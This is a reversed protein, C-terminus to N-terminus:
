ALDQETIHYKLLRRANLPSEKGIRILAAKSNDAIAPYSPDQQQIAHFGLAAGVVRRLRPNQLRKFMHYYDDVSLSGLLQTDAPSWGHRFSISHLIDEPSREDRFTKLKESFAHIVDPDQISEGFPHQSLDFFAYDEDGRRKMFLKLAYNAAKERGLIKLLSVAGNLESPTVFRTHRRLANMLSIVVERANDNFSDHFLAWAESFSKTSATEKCKNDLIQANQKFRDEDFFGRRVGDLLVLDFDDTSTYGYADLIGNWEDQQPAPDDAGLGSLSDDRKRCVFEIFKDDDDATRSFHAWGFLTLTSAAQEAIKVDYDKLLPLLHEFLREIKKIVRINSV